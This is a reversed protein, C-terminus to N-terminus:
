SFNVVRKMDGGIQRKSRRFSDADPTNIYQNVTTGKGGGMSEGLAKNPMIATATRAFFPEPGNEGTIGWQGARMVGGSAFGGAFSSLFSGLGQSVQGMMPRVFLDSALQKFIGRLGELDGKWEMVAETLHDTLGDTFSRFAEQVRTAGEIQAATTAGVLDFYEQALAIQSTLRAVADEDSLREAEHRQAELERLNALANVREEALQRELFQMQEMRESIPSSARGSAQRLDDIQQQSRLNEAQVRLGALENEAAFQARAAATAKAHAADLAALQGRLAAMSAAANTNSEALVENERISETIRERLSEYSDDVQQLVDDLPKLGGGAFSNVAREVKAVEAGFKRAEDALGATELEKIRDKLATIQGAFAKVDVGSERADQALDEIKRRLAEAQAMAKPMAKEDLGKSVSDNLDGLAEKLRKAAGAAKSAAKDTGGGTDFEPAITASPRRGPAAPGTAAKPAPAPKAAHADRLAQAKGLLAALERVRDGAWALLPGLNDGIWTKVGEYLSKAWDVAAGFAARFAEPIVAAKEGIWGFVAGTMDALWHKAADYIGKLVAAIGPALGDLIDLMDRFYEGVGETASRWAGLFDGTLVKTLVDLVRAMAKVTATVIGLSAQLTKVLVTGFVKVFVAALAALAFGIWRFFEGLPGSSIEGFLAQFAAVLQPIEQGMVARVAEAVGAFAEVIMDRFEWVSAVVALVIGGVISLQGILAGLAVVASGIGAAGMAQVFATTLVGWLPALTGVASVVGGILILLPGLVAAIGAVVVAFTQMEPTLSEFASLAAKLMSTLPPLIKNVIAGLVEQIDRWTQAAAAGPDAKRAALAAGGFQRQLEDLIMGQAEIGRGSKVLTKIMDKQSATFQVGVRQLATIGKVPDNLAKGLRIASSKLDDGLRESMDLALQQARDFVTGAVNGFTLLNATVQKLIDDDDALSLDQLAKASQQLEGATKGSRNGMSALAAEVDAMAKNSETAAKSSTIALAVFPATIAVSMRTGTAAIRQGVAKFRSAFKEVVDGAKGADQAFEVMSMSLVARLSGIVAAM